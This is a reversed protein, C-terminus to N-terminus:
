IRNKIEEAFKELYRLRIVDQAAKEYSKQEINNRINEICSLRDDANRIALKRFEDESSLESLEERAELSEMLLEQSPKINDQGDRNVIIGQLQLLYEARKLASKLTQYADNVVMTQQVALSKEKDSKRVFIDPHLKRQLTVYAQQIALEGLDFKETFGFLRFFNIGSPPQIFNCQPCFLVEANIEEACNYCKTKKNKM